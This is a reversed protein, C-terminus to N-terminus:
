GSGLSVVSVNIGDLLSCFSGYFNFGSNFMERIGHSFCSFTAKM